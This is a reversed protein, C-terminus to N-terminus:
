LLGYKKFIERAYEDKNLIEKIAKALKEIYERDAKKNISEFVEVERKCVRKKSNRFWKEIVCCLDLLGFIVSNIGNYLYTNRIKSEYM